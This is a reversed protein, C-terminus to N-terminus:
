CCSAAASTSRPRKISTGDDKATFCTVPRKGKKTKTVAVRVKTQHMVDSIGLVAGLNNHTVIDLLMDGDVGNAVVAEAYQDLGLSRIMYVVDAVYMEDMFRHATSSISRAPLAERLRGSASWHPYQSRNSHFVALLSSSITRDYYVIKNINIVKFYYIISNIEKLSWSRAGTRVM